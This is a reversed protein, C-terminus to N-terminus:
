FEGIPKRRLTESPLEGFRKRYEGAFRGLNGIGQEVAIRTVTTQRPESKLLKAHVGELRAQKLFQMPSYGRIRRFEASLTRGSVGAASIVDGLSISEGCRELIYQEAREICRSAARSHNRSLATSYNNPLADLLTSLLIDEYRKPADRINNLVSKPDELEALIVNLIRWLSKGFSTDLRNSMEFELAHGLPERILERLRNEFANKEIKIIIKSCAADWHAYFPRHPGIVVANGPRSATTRHGYKSESLGSLAIQVLFFGLEEVDVETEVGYHLYALSTNELSAYHLAAFSNTEHRRSFIARHPRFRAAIAGYIEDRDRTYCIKRNDLPPFCANLDLGVVPSPLPVSGSNSM